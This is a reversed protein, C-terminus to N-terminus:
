DLTLDSEGALAVAAEAHRALVEDVTTMRRDAEDIEQGAATWLPPDSLYVADLAVAAADAAWGAWRLDQAFTELGGTLAWQVFETHGVGLDEWQLADPAFYCVHGRVGRLGGGDLAFVGGVVDWGLVVYEPPEGAAAPDDLGNAEALSPLDAHGGGLMRLWGHDVLLGGTDYALAGLMSHVTVQLDVLCADRRDAEVPLAVVDVTSETLWQTLLPVGSDDVGVLEDLTLPM